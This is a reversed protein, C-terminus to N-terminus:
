ELWCYRDHYFLLLLLLLVYSSQLRIERHTGESRLGTTTGRTGLIRPVTGPLMDISSCIYIECHVMGLMDVWDNDHTIAVHAGPNQGSIWYPILETGNMCVKDLLVRNIIDLPHHPQSAAQNQAYLSEFLLVSRLYIWPHFYDIATLVNGLRTSSYEVAHFCVVYKDSDAM